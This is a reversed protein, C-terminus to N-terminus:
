PAPTAMGEGQQMPATMDMDSGQMNGMPMAMTMEVVPATLTMTEGNDFNITVEFSDGPNLPQALGILMIHKGGPKLELAAGAPIEFGDPMMVMKMVGQEEMTEHTEVVDAAASAASVLRVPTDLGNLVTMYVAGNGGALPAPRARVDVVTLKGAEPQPLPASTAPAAM